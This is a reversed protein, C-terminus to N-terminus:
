LDLVLDFAAQIEQSGHVVDEAKREFQVQRRPRFLEQAVNFDPVLGLLYASSKSAQGGHPRAGGGRRPWRRATLAFSAPAAAEGVTREDEGPRKPTYFLKSTHTM